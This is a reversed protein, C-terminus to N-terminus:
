RLAPNEGSALPSGVTTLTSVLMMPLGVPAHCTVTSRAGTVANASKANTTSITM